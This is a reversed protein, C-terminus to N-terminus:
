EMGKIKIVKSGYLNDNFKKEKNEIDSLDSLDINVFEIFVSNIVENFNVNSNNVMKKFEAENMIEADSNIKQAIKIWNSNDRPRYKSYEKKTAIEIFKEIQDRISTFIKQTNKDIKDEETSLDISLDIKSNIQKELEIENIKNEIHIGYIYGTMGNVSLLYNGKIREFNEKIYNNKEINQVYIIQSTANEKKNEQVILLKISIAILIIILAYLLLKKM